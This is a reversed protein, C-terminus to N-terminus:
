SPGNRSHSKITILSDSRIIKAITHEMQEKRDRIRKLPDRKRLRKQLAFKICHNFYISRNARVFSWFSHRYCCRCCVCVGALITSTTHDCYCCWGISLCYLFDFLRILFLTPLYIHAANDVVVVVVVVFLRVFSFM